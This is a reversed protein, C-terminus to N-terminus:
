RRAGARGEDQHRTRICRLLSTAPPHVFGLQFGDVGREDRRAHEHRQRSVALLLMAPHVVVQRRERLVVQAFGGVRFRQVVRRSGTPQRCGEIRRQARRPLPPRLPAVPDHMIARPGTRECERAETEAPERHRVADIKTRLVAALPDHRIRDLRHARMECCVIEAQPEFCGPGPLTGNSEVQSGSEPQARPLAIEREHPSWALRSRDHVHCGAGYGDGDLDLARLELQRVCLAIPDPEDIVACRRVNGFREDIECPVSLGRQREGERQM